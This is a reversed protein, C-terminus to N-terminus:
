LGFYVSGNQLVFTANSNPARVQPHNEPILHLSCWDLYGGVAAVGKPNPGYQCVTPFWHTLIGKPMDVRVQVDRPRDTYFYTVPTEMKSFIHSRQWSALGREEVFSPLVEESDVMGGLTVGNSGQVSLFTGWEHVILPDANTIPPRNEPATVGWSVLLLVATGALLARRALKNKQRLNRM